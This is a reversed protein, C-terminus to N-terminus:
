NTAVPVDGQPGSTTIEVKRSRGTITRGEDDKVTLEYTYSGDPLALGNEDKGDWMVHAPPAGKGGFRRVLQNTKDVIDLSWEDTNAKTKSKLQIKTVSREGLPSFVQPDAESNAFFGGFRYSVGLRHTMGLDEDTLAYRVEFGSPFRYSMGGSPSNDNYGFRVAVQSYLWYEAGVHMTLGTVDTQDIEGSLTGKGNLVRAAMGARYHVPFTEQTERLSLNPGGVNLVSAGVRLSPTLDYMLGFDGGVGTAGFEEVSQRVVKLSAGASFRPSFAKSASLLLALDTESFSGLPDNLEDTRDFNGSNLSLISVAFSPLHRSPMAFGFGYIGTDEYLRATEFHAENQYLLSLGAPNWLTGMPEDALAVFAGGLGLSRADTYRALWDGTVGASQDAARSPRAGATSLLALLVFMKRM